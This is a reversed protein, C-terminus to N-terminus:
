LLKGILLGLAVGVGAGGAAAVVALTKASEVTSQQKELFSKIDQRQNSFFSTVDTKLAAVAQSFFRDGANMLAGDVGEMAANKIRDARTQSMFESFIERVASASEEVAAGKNALSQSSTKILAAAQQVEDIATTTAQRVEDISSKVSEKFTDVVGRQFNETLNGHKVVSIQAVMAAVTWAPDAEDIEAARKKIEEDSIQELVISKMSKM